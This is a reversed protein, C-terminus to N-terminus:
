EIADYEKKLDNLIKQYMNIDESALYKNELKNKYVEIEYSLRLRKEETGCINAKVLTFNDGWEDLSEQLQNQYFIFNRVMIHIPPVKDGFGYKEFGGILKSIGYGTDHFDSNICESVMMEKKGVKWLDYIIAGTFPDYGMIDEDAEPGHFYSNPLLERLYVDIPFSQGYCNEIFYDDDEENCYIDCEPDVILEKKLQEIKEKRKSFELMQEDLTKGKNELTAQHNEFTIAVTLGSMTVSGYPFKLEQEDKPMAQYEEYPIGNKIVYEYSYTEKNELNQEDM